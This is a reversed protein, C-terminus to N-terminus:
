YIKTVSYVHTKQTNFKEYNNPTSETLQLGIRHDKQTSQSLPMQTNLYSSFRLHPVKHLLPGARSPKLLKLGIKLGLHLKSQSPWCGRHPQFALWVCPAWHSSLLAHPLTDRLASFAHFCCSPGGIGRAASWHSRLSPWAGLPKQSTIFADHTNYYHPITKGPTSCMFSPSQSLPRAAWRQHSIHCFTSGKM